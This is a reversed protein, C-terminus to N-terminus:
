SEQAERQRRTEVEWFRGFLFGGLAAGAAIVLLSVTPPLTFSDHVCDSVSDSADDGEECEYATRWAAREVQDM